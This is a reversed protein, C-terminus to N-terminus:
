RYAKGRKVLMTTFIIKDDEDIQYILRYKGIRVRYVAERRPSILKLDVGPRKRHPDCRLEEVINKVRSRITKNGSRIVAKLDRLFAKGYVVSYVPNGSITM